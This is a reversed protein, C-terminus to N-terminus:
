GTILAEKHFFRPTNQPHGQEDITVQEADKEANRGNGANGGNGGGGTPTAEAAEPVLSLYGDGTEKILSSAKMDYLMKRIAGDQKGVALAIEKAKMPRESENLMNIIARRTQSLAYTTANGLAEWCGANFTLALDVNQVYARGTGSLTAHAKGNARKLSLFSDAWKTVGTTAQLEDFPDDAAAQRSHFQLLICVNHADALYKLWTLAEEDASGTVTTEPKAVPQVKAWPDIIILRAQPHSDLWAEVAALGGADMRPWTTAYEFGDPISAGTVLLNGLREQLRRENDELALYLVDGQKVQINGLVTSGRAVGLGLTLDLWSKGVKRKGVFAVLGEPLIAPVIWRAPEFQKSMLSKFSRIMPAQPKVQESTHREERTGPRHLVASDRLDHERATIPTPLMPETNRPVHATLSVPASPHPVALKGTTVMTHLAQSRQQSFYQRADFEGTLLAKEIGRLSLGEDIIRKMALSDLQTTGLSLYGVLRDDRMSLRRYGKKRGDTLIAVEEISDLTDGVALLALRGLSTAHCSVGFPTALEDHGTMVAAAVRGQLVAAQWQARSQYVGTQPNKLAAVDGAAYIDPVSTRLQDDVLIGHGPKVSIDCQEALAMVPATGTCALVIQCPLMQEQNTVVGMVAGVRGVIGVVETETYVSAGAQRSRELVLNSATLDLLRPLFTASRILWHVRIGWHLLAMVTDLAHTGGGIVVVAKVERLRRRLDIYDRLHHLTLVGDFDRGPVYAPLGIPASGTALLLSGYGFARGDSLCVFKGSPHIEEVHAKIVHIRQAREVGAPYALLQERALKGIAFQKLAPTHIAPHSQRTIMVIHKDPALRRAEVAATIGAIGNGVIVM